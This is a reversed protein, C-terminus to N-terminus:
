APHRQKGRFVADFEARVRLCREDLERKNDASIFALGLSLADLLSRTAPYEAGQTANITVDLVGPLAMLEEEVPRDRCQTPEDLNFFIVAGWQPLSYSGGSASLPQEALLHAIYECERHIHSTGTLKFTKLPQGAGHARAGFDIMRPGVDPNYMVEMHGAGVRVGLADLVATAYDCIIGAPAEDPALWKIREYVFDGNASVRKDYCSVGLVEHVGDHSFTDVVYETQPHPYLEQVLANPRDGFFGPATTISRVADVLEASTSVMRVDVSGAGMSPKVVVPADAVFRAADDTNLSEAVPIAVTELSPVGSASLASFMFEKDWRPRSDGPSNAPCGPLHERLYECLGIGSESGAVVYGVANDRCYALVRDASGDFDGEFSLAGPTAETRLGGIRARETDLLIVPIGADALLPAYLAGSSVPDVM